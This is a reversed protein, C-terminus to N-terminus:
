NKIRKTVNACKLTLSSIDAIYLIYFYVRAVGNINVVRATKLIKDHYKLPNEGLYIYSIDM